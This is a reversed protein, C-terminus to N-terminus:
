LQCCSMKPDTDLLDGLQQCRGSGFHSFYPFVPWSGVQVGLHQGGPITFISPFKLKIFNDQFQSSTITEQNGKETKRPCIGDM